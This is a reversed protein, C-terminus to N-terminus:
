KESDETEMNVTTTQLTNLGDKSLVAGGFTNSWVLNFVSCVVVTLISVSSESFYKTFVSESSWDAMQLIDTMVGALKDLNAMLM